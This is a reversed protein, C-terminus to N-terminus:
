KISGCNKMTLMNIGYQNQDASVNYVTRQVQQMLQVVRSIRAGSPDPFVDYEAM